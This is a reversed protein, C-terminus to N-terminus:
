LKQGGCLRIIAAASHSCLRQSVHPKNHHELYEHALYYDSDSSTPINRVLRNLMSHLPNHTAMGQMLFPLVERSKQIRENISALDVSHWLMIERLVEPLTIEYLHAAARIYGPACWKFANSFYPTEDYSGALQELIQDLDQM